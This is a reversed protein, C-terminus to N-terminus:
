LLERVASEIVDGPPAGTFRRRITGKRDIIFTTPLGSIPGYLEDVKADGLLNTYNIKQDRLFGPVVDAANEDMSIGVIEFGKDRYQDHLGLFFHLEARCPACWTAWFDLMVVKGQYASLSVPKGDMDPLTFDPAQKGIRLDSPPEITCAAALLLSLAALMLTTRSPKTLIWGESARM